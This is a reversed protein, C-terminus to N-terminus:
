NNVFDSFKEWDINKDKDVVARYHESSASTLLRVSQGYRINTVTAM